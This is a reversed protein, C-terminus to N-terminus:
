SRAMASSLLSGKYRVNSEDVYSIYEAVIQRILHSRSTAADDAIEDLRKLLDVPIRFTAVPNRAATLQREQAQAALFAEQISIVADRVAQRPNQAVPELEEDMPPYFIITM